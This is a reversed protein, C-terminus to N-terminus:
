NESPKEAHDIVLIGVPRKQSDLKLGPQQELATPLPPFLIGAEGGGKKGVASAPPRSGIITQGRYKAPSKGPGPARKTPDLQVCSGEKAEVRIVQVRWAFAILEKLSQDVVEIRGGPNFRIEQFRSNPAAPKISAVEFQPRAVPHAITGHTWFLAGGIAALRTARKRM